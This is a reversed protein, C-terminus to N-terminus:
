NKSFRQIHSIDKRYDENIEEQICELCKINKRNPKAEGTKSYYGFINNCLDNSCKQKIQKTKDNPNYTSLVLLECGELIDTM